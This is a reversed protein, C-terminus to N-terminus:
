ILLSCLRRLIPPGPDVRALALHPHRVADPCYADASLLEGSVVVPPPQPDTRSAKEAAPRDVTVQIASCCEQPAIRAAAQASPQLGREAACCPHAMSARMGNCYFAAFTAPGAAAALLVGALMAPIVRGVRLREVM